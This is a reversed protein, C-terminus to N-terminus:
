KQPLVFGFLVGLSTAVKIMEQLALPFSLFEEVCTIEPKFFFTKLWIAM